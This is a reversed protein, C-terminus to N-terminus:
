DKKFEEVLYNIVCNDFDEGGFYIDGNIVLVEFMYEGDVEDIEIIFIDFM